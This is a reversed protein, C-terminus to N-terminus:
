PNSGTASVVGYPSSTNGQALLQDEVYIRLDLNKRDGSTKQIVAVYSGFQGVFSITASGCGDHTANGVAGSWCTREATSIYLTAVKSSMDPLTDMVQSFILFWSATTVVSIVTFIIIFRKLFPNMVYDYSLM